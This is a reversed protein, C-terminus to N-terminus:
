TTLSKKTGDAIWCKKFREYRKNDCEQKLNEWEEQSFVIYRRSHFSEGRVTYVGKSSDKYILSGTNLKYTEKNVKIVELLECKNFIYNCFIVKDGVNLEM